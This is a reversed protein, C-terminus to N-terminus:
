WTNSRHRTVDLHLRYQLGLSSSHGSIGRCLCSPSHGPMICGSMTVLVRHHHAQDAGPTIVLLSCLCRTLPTLVLLPCQTCGCPPWVLCWAAGCYEVRLSVSPQPTLHTSVRAQMGVGRLMRCDTDYYYYRLVKSCMGDHEWVCLRSM